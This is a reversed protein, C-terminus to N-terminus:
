NVVGIRSESKRLRHYGSSLLDPFTEAAGLGLVTINAEDEQVRKVLLANNFRPSLSETYLTIEQTAVLEGAADREFLALAQKFGDEMSAKLLEAESSDLGATVQKLSRKFDIHSSYRGIWHGATAEISTTFHLMDNEGKVIMLYPSLQFGEATTGAPTLNPSLLALAQTMHIPNPAIKGALAEADNRTNADIMAMNGLVGMPGFMLGVAVGGGGFNQYYYIPASSHITKSRSLIAEEHQIDPRISYTIMGNRVTPPAEPYPLKAVCGSLLMSIYLSGLVNKYNM